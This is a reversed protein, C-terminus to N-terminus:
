GGSVLVARAEGVRLPRTTTYAIAATDLERIGVQYDVVYSPTWRATVSLQYTGRRQYIAILGTGPRGDHATYYAPEVRPDPTVGPQYAVGATALARAPTGDGLRWTWSGTVTLTVAVGDVTASVAHTPQEPQGTDPDAAWLVTPLRVLTAGPPASAIRPARLPLRRVLQAIVDRDLTARDVFDTQGLCVTGVNALRDPDTGRFVFYLLATRDRARCLRLAPGCLAADDGPVNGQCAPAFDYYYRPGGGGGGGGGGTAGEIKRLATLTLVYGDDSHASSGQPPPCEYCLDALAVAPSALM